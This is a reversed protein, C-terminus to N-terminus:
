AAAKAAEKAIDLKEELHAVKDQLYESKSTSISLRELLNQEARQADESTNNLQREYRAQLDEIENEHKSVLEQQEGRHKSALEDVQTETANQAEELLMEYRAQATDADLRVKDLQSRLTALQDELEERVVNVQNNADEVEAQMSERTRQVERAGSERAEEFEAQFRLATQQHKHNEARLEELLGELKKAESIARMGQRENMELRELETEIRERTKAEAQLRADLVEQRALLAQEKKTRRASEEEIEHVAQAMDNQLDLFKSRWNDRMRENEQLQTGLTDLLKRMARNEGVAHSLDDEHRTSTDILRETESKWHRTEQRAERLDAEAINLKNQLESQTQQANAQAAELLTLRMSGKGHNAELSKARQEKEEVLERLRNEEEASIRLLRQVESLRDEAARRGQLQEETRVEQHHLKDELDSLRQDFASKNMIEIEIRTEASELRRSLDASREEAARRNDVEKEIRDGGQRVKQELEDIRAQLEVNRENAADLLNPAPSPPMRREVAEEVINRLDEGRFDLHLSQNFQEKLEELAHVVTSNISHAETLSEFAPPLTAQDPASRQQVAFADLVAARIQEMRRDRRPSLSRQLPVEDDEDDADSEQVEASTSRRERHNSRSRHSMIGLAKKIEGLTDELPDLRSTLLGGVLQNVRGDFFNVRSELKTQEDETFAGDWDSVPSTATGSLRHVGVDYSGSIQPPDLFPDDLETSVMPQPVEGPLARYQRPSPSPADSRFANNPPLHLPSSNTVAALSIHRTPSPQHWEPADVNKHVGMNPNANLHRMVADIDEMSAEEPAFQDRGDQSVIDGPSVPPLSDMFPPLSQLTNDEADMPSVVPPLEETEDDTVVPSSTPIGVPEAPPSPERAFRSAALGKPPPAAPAFRSASLGQVPPAVPSPIRTIEATASDPKDAPSQSLLEAPEGVHEEVSEHAAQEALEDLTEAPADQFDEEAPVEHSRFLM